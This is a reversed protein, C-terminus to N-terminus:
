TAITTFIDGAAAKAANIAGGMSGSTDILFYADILADTPKGASITVTKAVTVSEGVALDAAFSDPSISDALAGGAFFGLAAVSLASLKVFM